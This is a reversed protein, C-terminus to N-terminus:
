HQQRALWAKVDPEHEEHLHDFLNGDALARGEMWPFYGPTTVAEEPLAAVAAALRAYSQDADALVDRLPQDRHQHYIWDNITDDETFEAPWPPPPEPEGRAAAEIRGITRERWGILHAALDKF